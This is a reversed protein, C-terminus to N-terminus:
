DVGHAGLELLCDKMDFAKIVQIDAVDQWGETHALVLTRSRGIGESPEIV